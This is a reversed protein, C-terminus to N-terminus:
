SVAQETVLKLVYLPNYNKDCVGCSAGRLRRARVVRQGCHSCLYVYRKRRTSRKIPSAAYRKNVGLRYALDWFDKSHNRHVIHAVEHRFTNLTEDWGHEQFAQWSLVILNHAPRYYGGYTKRRSFRVEPQALTGGFHDANLRAFERYLATLVDEPSSSSVDLEPFDSSKM